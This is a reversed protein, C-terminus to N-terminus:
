AGASRGSRRTPARNDLARQAVCSDRNGLRCVTNKHVPVSRAFMRIQKIHLHDHPELISARQAEIVQM